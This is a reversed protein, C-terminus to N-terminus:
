VLMIPNIEKHKSKLRTLIISLKIQIINYKM